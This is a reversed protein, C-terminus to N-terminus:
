MNLWDLLSTLLLLVAYKDVVFFLAARLRTRSNPFGDEGIRKVVFLCAVNM